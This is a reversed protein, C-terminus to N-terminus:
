HVTQPWMLRPATFIELDCLERLFIKYIDINLEKRRTQILSELEGDTRTDVSHKQGVNRGGHHRKQFLFILFVSERWDTRGRVNRTMKMKM